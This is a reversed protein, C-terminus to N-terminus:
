KVRKWGNGSNPVEYREVYNHEEKYKNIQKPPENKTLNGMVNPVSNLASETIKGLGANVGAMFPDLGGGHDRNYAMAALQAATVFDLNDLITKLEGAYASKAAADASGMRAKAQIETAAIARELQEPSFRRDSVAAQLASASSTQEKSRMEREAYKEKLDQARAASDAQSETAAVRRPEFSASFTKTDAEQKAIRNREADLAETRRNHTQSELLKEYELGMQTM